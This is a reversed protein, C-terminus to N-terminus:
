SAQPRLCGSSQVLHFMNGQHRHRVRLRILLSLIHASHDSASPAILTLLRMCLSPPLAGGVLQIVDDNSMFEFVGDSALVLFLHSPLLNVVEVEPVACVGIAEAVACRM